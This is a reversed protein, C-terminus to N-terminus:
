LYYGGKNKKDPNEGDIKIVKLNNYQPFAEKARELLGGRENANMGTYVYRGYRDEVVTYYM